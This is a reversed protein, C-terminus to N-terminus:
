DDDKKVGRTDGRVEKPLSKIIKNLDRFLNDIAAAIYTFDYIMVETDTIIDMMVKIVKDKDSVRSEEDYIMGAYDKEKVVQDVKEQTTRELWRLTRGAEIVKNNNIAIESVEESEEEEIRQDVIHWSHYVRNLHSRNYLDSISVRLSALQLKLLGYRRKLLDMSEEIDKMADNRLPIVHKKKDNGLIIDLHDSETKRLATFREQVTDLNRALESMTHRFDYVKVNQHEADLYLGNM